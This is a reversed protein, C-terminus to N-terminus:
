LKCAEKKWEKKRKFPTKICVLHANQYFANKTHTCIIKAASRWFRSSAHDEGRKHASSDLSEFVRPLLARLISVLNEENFRSLCINFICKIYQRHDTPVASQSLGTVSSTSDSPRGLLLKPRLSSFSLLIKGQTYARNMEWTNVLDCAEACVAWM